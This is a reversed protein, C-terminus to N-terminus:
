SVSFLNLPQLLKVKFAIGVAFAINNEVGDLIRKKKYTFFFHM